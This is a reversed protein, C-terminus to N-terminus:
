SISWRTPDDYADKMPKVSIHMHRTHPNAGGYSRWTWAPAGGIPASNAIRRNWIVYKVRRDRSAVIAEALRGADCGGSPDHTIDIATVIGLSGEVVWPNHDSNTKEHASDGITGDSATGRGPAMADIQARLVDLSRAPRWPPRVGEALGWGDDVQREGEEAEADDGSHPTVASGTPATGDTGKWRTLGGRMAVSRGSERDFMDADRIGDAFRIGAATEIEALPVQLHLFKDPVVFELDVGSLDQALMFGFAAPRGDDGKAVIVKWYRQPIQVQVRTRGPARGLFVRDALDLVPGAFVCLCESAAEALVLNELRGWNDTGRSSQNFAAIQPSCNTVHFTDGNAQRVEEYTEGWAVDDRRVVHGKDFAGDDYTYFFDSLQYRADLRPDPFWKEQDREALNGLPKRGYDRGDEPRRLRREATVNSAAVLVLRRRAHTLISFHTYKLETGGGEVPALVSEDRARPMPVDLGPIFGSRYGERGAYNTDHYPEVLREEDGPPSAPATEGGTLGALFPTGLEITIRLPVELTIRGVAARVDPASFPAAPPSPLPPPSPSHSSPNGAAEGELGNWASLWGPRGASVAPGTFLVGADRVRSDLGLESAPVAYNTKLYRGGFHLAIVEGTAIDILASGSNGGLTSCEHGAADVLKGFSATRMPSALLGPQLRKVGYARDFIRDQVLPNNRIPDYAPYGIVAVELGVLDRADRTSLALPALGPPLEKVELLAMDWWPHIMRVSRVQLVPGASRDRERKLDLGAGQGDNFRLGKAGLGQAFIEAVHRNTMLLGDGIVFGTGGYPVDPIGVLEIRGVGPIARLLNGRFPEDNLKAWLPHDANYVGDVVDFAPRKGPIIIAETAALEMDSLDGRRRSSLKDAASRAAELLVGDANVKRWSAPAATVSETAAMEAGAAEHRDVTQRLEEGDLTGGSITAVYSRLANEADHMAM